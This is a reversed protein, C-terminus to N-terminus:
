AVAKAAKRAAVMVHFADGWGMGRAMLRAHADRTPMQVGDLVFMGDHAFEVSLAEAQATRATLMPDPDGHARLYGVVAHGTMTDPGVRFVSSVPDFTVDPTSKHM